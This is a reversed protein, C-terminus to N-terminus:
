DNNNVEKIKQELRKYKQCADKFSYYKYKIPEGNVQGTITTIINEFDICPAISMSINNDYNIFNTAIIM